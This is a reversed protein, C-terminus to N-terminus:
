RITKGAPEAIFGLLVLKETGAATGYTKIIIKDKGRFLLPANFIGVVKEYALIKEIEYVALTSSGDEFIMKTTLPTASNVVIGFFVVHTKDDLEKNIITLEGAASYDFSWVDASAGTLSLDTYPLIDRVRYNAPNEGSQIIATELAALASMRIAKVEGLDLDERPLIYTALKGSVGVREAM